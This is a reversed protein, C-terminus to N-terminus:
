NYVKLYCLLFYMVLIVLDRNNVFLFRLLIKIVIFFIVRIKVM